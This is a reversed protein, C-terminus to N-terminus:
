GDFRVGQSDISHNSIDNRKGKDREQVGEEDSLLTGEESFGEPHNEPWEGKDQKSSTNNSIDKDHEPDEENDGISKDEDSDKIAQKAKRGQQPKYLSGATVQKIEEKNLDRWGKTSNVAKYKAPILDLIRRNKADTGDKVDWSLLGTRLRFRTARM